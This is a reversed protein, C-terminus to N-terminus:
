RTSALRIITVHARNRRTGFKKLIIRAIFDVKTSAHQIDFGVPKGDSGYDVMVDDEIEVTRCVANVAGRSLPQGDIQRLENEPRLVKMLSPTVFLKVM